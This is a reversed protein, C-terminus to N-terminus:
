PSILSFKDSSDGPVRTTVQCEQPSLITHGPDGHSGLDSCVAAYTGLHEM